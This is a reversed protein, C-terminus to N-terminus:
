SIRTLHHAVTMKASFLLPTRLVTLKSAAGNGAPIVKGPFSDPVIEKLGEAELQSLYRKKEVGM